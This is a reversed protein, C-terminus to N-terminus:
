SFPIPKRLHLYTPDFQATRALGAWDLITLRKGSLAILDESRLEQLTRNVHVTSLGLADALIAQTFPLDCWNENTLGVASMRTFIECLFHALHDHASLQGLGTIWARFIAADILTDRWFAEAIGPLDRMVARLREHSIFGVRSHVLAALSHDMILLALSHLDPMDGPTHIALIQRRGNELMKYRHMFGDILFCCEGVTEGDRAFDQGPRLETLRVPLDLLAKEEEASLDAISRLKRVLMDTAPM